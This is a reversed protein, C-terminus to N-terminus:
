HRHRRKRSGHSADPRLAEWSAPLGKLGKAMLDPRHMRRDRLSERIEVGVVWSIMHLVDHREYGLATLREATKWTVEPEGDWIQNAAIEHLSLHLTPSMAQGDVVIEQLGLQSAERLDPHEFAILLHREDPDVPDLYALDIGDVTGSVPPFLWSRRDDTSWAM